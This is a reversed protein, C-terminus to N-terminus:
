KIADDFYDYDPDNSRKNMSINPNCTNVCQGLVIVLIIITLLCGGASWLGSKTAEGLSERKANGITTILFVLILIVGIIILVTEM